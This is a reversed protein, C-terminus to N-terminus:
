YVPRLSLAMPLLDNQLDFTLDTTAIEKGTPDTIRGPLATITRILHLPDVDQQGRFHYTKGDRGAFDFEFVLRRRSLLAIELTGEIPVGDALEEAFLTGRLRTVPRALFGRLRDATATVTFTFNREDAAAQDTRRWTGSLTQTFEFGVDLSEVLSGQEYRPVWAHEQYWRLVDPFSTRIDPHKVTWGLRKLKANSFVVDRVFYAATARDLRPALDGTLGHRKQIVKWVVGAVVNVAKFFGDSNILPYLMRNVWKPPIPARATIAFGYSQIAANLIEGFRLPTDDCVNFTEGYADRNAMVFVAARAVDEAHVWNSKPGGTLGVMATGGSLLKLIPPFAALSGALLRGRPGYILSPRLIVWGPGGKRSLALLLAESDIKTQEYGSDGLLPTDETILGSTAQYISGSSIHVFGRAGEDRSGEYLWGAADVNLPKLQEFSLAIDISAATHIVFTAGRVCSRAFAADTLDGLRDEVRGKATPPLDPLRVDVRDVRVVRVGPDRLLEEVVLAGVTGAAGTVVVTTSGKKMAEETGDRRSL